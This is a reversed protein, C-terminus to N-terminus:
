SSISITCHQPHFDVNGARKKNRGFLVGVTANGARKKNRGFLVGVTAIAVVMITENNDGSPNLHKMRTAM